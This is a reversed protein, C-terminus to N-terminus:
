LLSFQKQEPRVHRFTQRHLPCPGKRALVALHEKTGYGKHRAFGYNPYFEDLRILLSDRVTKALVSAASVSPICADAGVIANQDPLEPIKGPLRTPPLPLYQEWVLASASIGRICAQWEVLPIGYNGDIVLQPLATYESVGYADQLKASLTLVARSMARFTANLINVRDIEDQWSIGIGYGRAQRAIMPAMTNRQKDSLKKSDTLGPLLTAFDFGPIFLVAAAVIPGALCGRGAEDVGIHTSAPDFSQPSTKFRVRATNPLPSLM